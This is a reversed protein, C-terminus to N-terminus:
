AALPLEESTTQSKDTQSNGGPRLNSLDGALVDRKNAIMRARSHLPIVPTDDGTEQDPIFSTSGEIQDSTTQDHPTTEPQIFQNNLEPQEPLPPIKPKVTVKEIEQPQITASEKRGAVPQEQSDNAVRTKIDNIRKTGDSLGAQETQVPQAAETQKTQIASTIDTNPVSNGSLYEGKPQNVVNIPVSEGADPKNIVDQEVDKETSSAVSAGKPEVIVGDKNGDASDSQLPVDNEIKITPGKESAKEIKDITVVPQSTNEDLAEPKKAEAVSKIQTAKSDDEPEPESVDVNDLDIPKSLPEIPKEAMVSEAREANDAKAPIPRHEDAPTFEINEAAADASPETKVFEEPKQVQDEIESGDEGFTVMQEFQDSRAEPTELEAQDTPETIEDTVPQANLSGEVSEATNGMRRRWVSEPMDLPKGSNDPNTEIKGKDGSNDGTVKEVYKVFRQFEQDNKSENKYDIKM